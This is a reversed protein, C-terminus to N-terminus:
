TGATFAIVGENQLAISFEVTDNQEGTKGFSTINFDGQYTEGTSDILQALIVPNSSNAVTALDKYAYLGSTRKDMKGSGAITVTSYGTYCSSTENGTDAQNTTESIPNERTFEKTRIGAIPQFSVGADVSVGLVYDRGKEADSM